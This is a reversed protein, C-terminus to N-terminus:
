AYREQLRQMGERMLNILHADAPLSELDADVFDTILAYHLSPDRNALYRLELGELLHEVSAVSTLITPVAVLTRQEPPIGREFDMRPLSQPRLLQMSLWNVLSVGFQSACILVPVALVLLWQWSVNLQDAKLMYLLSLSLTVLSTISLYSILPAKRHLKGWMAAPTLRMEVLSELIPRGHDILYYGVHAAREASQALAHKEALRVAQRAVDCETLRSRRAIEEVTRRYRDRTAFSMNSYIHSPDSALTQEVLSNKEVFRRWDNSNLFRLSNISNGISVQDAAQAQGEAHVVQEITLLQDALRHELWSNAFAFNPNQGQLHRTLEALFAGSLPPNTRAMDALVLVLDTPKQEVVKVMRDAWDNALDRDRRASAIRVSVRRLNEILALRLMLPLAWLEGLKLTEVSQYSEIFSTLSDADIRGDVHSILELAIAYIRPFCVATGSSLRPLERSYSPPLLRRIARIQEEILYFNDLLWEAAPEIRRNQDAAATVLDYT